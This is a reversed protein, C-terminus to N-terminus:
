KRFHKTMSTHGVLGNGDIDLTINMNRLDIINLSEMYGLLYGIVEQHERFKLFLVGEEDTLEIQTM